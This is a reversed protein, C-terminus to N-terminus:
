IYMVTGYLGNFLLICGREFRLVPRELAMRLLGILQWLDLMLLARLATQHARHPAIPCPQRPLSHLPYIAGIQVNM